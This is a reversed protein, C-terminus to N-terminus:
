GGAPPARDPASAAATLTRGARGDADPVRPALLLSFRFPFRRRLEAPTESALFRRVRGIEWAQEVSVRGDYRAVYGAGLLALLLRVLLAALRSPRLDVVAAGRTAVRRMEDLIRGNEAEDFHHFFLNSATWDVTGDALPLSRADAVLRHQRHGRRRGCALHGLKRDVGLVTLRVGHRAARAALTAPVQGTGTGLDVLTQRRPGRRLRPLLTRVLPGLGFGWRNVRELDLLAREADAASLSPQDMLEPRLGNALREM